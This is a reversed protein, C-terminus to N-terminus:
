MWLLRVAMTMKGRFALRRQAKSIVGQPTKSVTDYAQEETLGCFTAMNVVDYPGRIEFVNGAGSSFLIAKGGTAQALAQVNAFFQQKKAGSGISSGIFPSYPVEFVVGREVATKIVDHRLKFNFRKTCDLSIIDVELITCAHQFVKDSGPIIAIIDYTHLISQSTSFLEQCTPVDALSLTLRKLQHVKSATQSVATAIRSSGGEEMMTTETKRDNKDQM